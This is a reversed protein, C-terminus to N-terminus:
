LSKFFIAFYYGRSLQEVVLNRNINVINQYLNGNINCAYIIGM